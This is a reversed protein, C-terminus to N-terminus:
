FRKSLPIIKGYSDLKIFNPAIKKLIMFENKYTVFGLKTYYNELDKQKMASNRNSKFPKPILLINFNEFEKSIARLIAHGIGKNAMHQPVSLGSVIVNRRNVKEVFAEADNIFFRILPYGSSDDEEMQVNAYDDVMSQLLEANGVPDQALNMYERDMDNLDSEFLLQFLKSFSISFNNMNNIKGSMELLTIEMKGIKERM